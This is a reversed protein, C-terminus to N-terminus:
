FVWQLTLRGSHSEFRDGFCKNYGLAVCMNNRCQASLSFEVAFRDKDLTVPYWRTEDGWSRDVPIESGSLNRKWTFRLQTNLNTGEKTVFDKSVRVGLLSEVVTTSFDGYTFGNV